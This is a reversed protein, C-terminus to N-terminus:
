FEVHVYTNGNGKASTERHKWIGKRKKLEISMKTGCYNFEFDSKRNKIKMKTVDLYPKTKDLEEDFSLYIIEVPQDQFKLDIEPFFLGNSVIVVPLFNGNKDKKFVKQLYPIDLSKQLVEELIEEDSYNYSYVTQGYLSFSFALFLSGLLARIILNKMIQHKLLKFFNHRRSHYPLAFENIQEVM